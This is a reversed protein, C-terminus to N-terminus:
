KNIIKRLMVDIAINVSNLMSQGKRMSYDTYSITVPFEGYSLKNDAIIHLLESGHAMDPMTINVKQAAERTFIRLGNHTDTLNLGTTASSVKTALALLSKKLKPINSDNSLFRSGLLVDTKEKEIHKLMAKADSVSHQGDSDFTIFFEADTARLGYELGTQLAAGQGLNFPHSVVQANTKALEQKSGDTCGDLVCVVTKFEKLVGNVVSQVVSEENYVPIVVCADLKSNM